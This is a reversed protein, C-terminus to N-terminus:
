VPLCMENKPDACVKPGWMCEREELEGEARARAKCHGWLNWGQIDLMAVQWSRGM